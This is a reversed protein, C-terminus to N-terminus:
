CGVYVREHAKLVHQLGLSLDKSGHVATLREERGAGQKRSIVFAHGKGVERAGAYPLRRYDFHPTDVRGVGLDAFGSDM